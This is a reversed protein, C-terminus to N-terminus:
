KIEWLDKSIDIKIDEKEFEFLFKDPTGNYIIEYVVDENTFTDIMFNNVLDMIIPEKKFVIEKNNLDLTHILKLFYTIEIYLRYKFYAFESFYGSLSSTKKYYRGDIPSIALLSNM